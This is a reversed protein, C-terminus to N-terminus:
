IPPSNLVGLALAHLEGHTPPNFARLAAATAVARRFTSVQAADFAALDMTMPALAAEFMGIVDGVGLDLEDLDVNALVSGDAVQALGAFVAPPLQDAARERLQTGVLRRAANLHHAAFSALTRADADIAATSRKGPPDSSDAPRRSPPTGGAGPAGEGAPTNAVKDWDIQQAIEMDLTALYPNKIQRGLQRVFELETPAQEPTVGVSENLAKDSVTIRDHLQRYDEAANPRTVVQSGDALVVRRRIEAESFKPDGEKGTVKVWDRLGPWLYERTVANAWRQARPLMHAQYADDSVGWSQWHTASGLGTQSEPPLNQGMAINQRLEARLEMEVRDITRDMVIHRIFEGQPGDGQLIIPIAGAATNRHLIAAEITQLFRNWFPNKVPDTSGDPADNAGVVSLGSPIFLIGAQAARNLIRSTMSDNLTILRQCDGALPRLPSDGVFTMSPHAKWLRKVHGKFESPTQAGMSSFGIGSREWGAGEARPRLERVSLYEWDTTVSAGAGHDTGVLYGEGSVDESLSFLEALANIDGLPGELAWLIEQAIRDLDTIDKADPVVAPASPSGAPKVAALYMFRAMAAGFYSAPYHVEALSDYYIWGSEQWPQRAAAIKRTLNTDGPNVSTAAAVLANRSSRNFLAM